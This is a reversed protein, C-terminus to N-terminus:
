FTFTINFATSGATSNANGGYNIRGGSVLSGNGSTDVRYVITEESTHTNSM